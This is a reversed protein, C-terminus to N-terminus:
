ELMADQFATVMSYNIGLTNVVFNIAKAQFTDGYISVFNGGSMKSIDGYGIPYYFWSSSANNRERYDGGDIASCFSTLEYDIDRLDDRVGLMSELLLCVFGTRDAGVKCHIYVGVDNLVANMIRTLTPGMKSPSELENISNYTEQTHGQYITSNNDPIQALGLANFMYSGDSSATQVPNYRLDVDLEIGMKKLIFDKQDNTSTKDMNTGRFIKGFKLTRGDTTMLGGFDRCNNAYQNKKGEPSSGVKIMRRRGTTKFHGEALTTNGSKVVYYCTRGPILNYIEASNGSSSIDAIAMIEEDTHDANYYVAISTNGSSTTTWSVPVPKPLDYRESTNTKKISAFQQVYSVSKFNEPTYPHLEVYDFYAAVQDNEVSFALEDMVTLTYSASGEKFLDDAEATATITATGVSQITVAGTNPNVTAVATNSSAYTVRTQAGSLTPLGEPNSVPPTQGDLAYTFSSASFQLTQAKLVSEDLMFLALERSSNYTSGKFYNSSTSYKFYQNTGATINVVGGNNTITCATSAATGAAINSGSPYFYYGPAVAKMYYGSQAAKELIVQCADVADTSRIRKGSGRNDFTVGYVNASSALLATNGNLIPKFAKSGAEYVILYKGGDVMEDVTNIKVYWAEREVNDLNLNFRRMGNRNFVKDTFPFTYTAANTVVTVTGSYTGPAVVMYLHGEAAADKNRAVSASQSLTVSSPNSGDQWSLALSAENGQAVNLLNLSAEGSIPHDGSTATMRISRIREGAYRTSFVRFDIFSGLNLSYVKGNVDGETAEFPIGAMPMASVSAGQQSAPFPVKVSTPDTNTADYPYYAYVMRNTSVQAPYAILKKGNEETVRAGGHTTGMFVGLEDDIDWFVGEEGLTAKTEGDVLEFRFVHGAPDTMEVEERNCSILAAASAALAMIFRTKM